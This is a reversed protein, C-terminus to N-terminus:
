RIGSNMELIPEMVALVIGLVIAGMLLIMVPELLTSIMKTNQQADVEANQAGYKLMQALQGSSEGARILHILLSPFVGTMGLARSFSTGERVRKETDVIAFQLVVNSLTQRATQLADLIPVNAAIMMSMSNAFRAVEFSRILHGIMPLNLCFGDFSKRIRANKILFHACFSSLVLILLLLWGWTTLFESLGIVFRTLFPLQQKSSVFVRAIQPVVSTMLFIVVMISISILLAPYVLANTIQQRLAQRKDLFLSLEQLVLGLKGSQEAGAVIGQYLTDFSKPQTSIAKSLPMGSRLEELVGELIDQVHSSTTEESLIALAQDIPIDARILLAFQKTFFALEDQTLRKKTFTIQQWISKKANEQYPNLSIPVLQKSLLQQRASQLSDSELIGKETSGSYSVAEFHFRPM